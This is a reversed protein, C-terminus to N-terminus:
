SPVSQYEARLGGHNGHLKPLIAYQYIWAKFKGPLGSKDVTLLWSKLEMSTGQVAVM